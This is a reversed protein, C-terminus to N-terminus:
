PVQEGCEEEFAVLVYGQGRVSAVRLGVQM